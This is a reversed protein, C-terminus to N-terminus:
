PADPETPVDEIGVFADVTCCRDSIVPAPTPDAQSPAAQTMFFLLTKCFITQKPPTPVGGAEAAADSFVLTAESEPDISTPLVGPPALTATGTGIGPPGNLSIVLMDGSQLTNRYNTGNKYLVDEPAILAPDADTRKIGIFNHVFLRWPFENLLVYVDAPALTSM